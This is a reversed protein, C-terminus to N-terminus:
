PRNMGAARKKRAALTAITHWGSWSVRLQASGYLKGLGLQIRTSCRGRRSITLTLWHRTFLGNENCYNINRGVISVSDLWSM